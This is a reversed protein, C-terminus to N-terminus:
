IEINTFISVLENVCSDVRQRPSRIADALPVLEENPADKPDDNPANKLVTGLRARLTNIASELKDVSSNLKDLQESVESQRSATAVEGM